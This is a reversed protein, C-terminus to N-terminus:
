ACASVMASIDQLDHSFTMTMPPDSLFFDDYLERWPSDGRAIRRRSL